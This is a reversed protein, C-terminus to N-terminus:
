RVLSIERDTTVGQAGSRIVSQVDVHIPLRKACGARRHSSAIREAFVRVGFVSRTVDLVGLRMRLLRAPQDAIKAATDSLSENSTRAKAWLLGLTQHTPVTSSPLAVNLGPRTPVVFPKGVCRTTAPSTVRPM